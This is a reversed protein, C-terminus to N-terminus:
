VRLHREMLRVSAIRVDLWTLGRTRGKTMIVDLVGVIM